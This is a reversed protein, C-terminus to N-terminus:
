KRELKDLEKILEEVTFRKEEDLSISKEIIDWIEGRAKRVKPFDGTIMVNLLVGLAYVDAKPSSAKMGYGMQEPAAFYQTGMHRTDDVKEPDYWKAVNMDLLFM